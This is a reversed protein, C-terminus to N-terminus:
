ASHEHIVPKPVMVAHEHKEVHVGDMRNLTDIARIASVVHREDRAWRSLIARREDASAVQARWRAVKETGGAADEVAPVPDPV